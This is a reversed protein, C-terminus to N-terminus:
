PIIRRRLISAFRPLGTSTLGFYKYTIISGIPPPNKRQAISFGTGLRFSEGATTKVVLAGLLGTFQGKGPTHGTVIAEADQYLKLKLLDNSRGQQYLSDTKHLMLGEGGANVIQQLKQQLSHNTTLKFQKVAQIHPSNINTVIQKLQLLRQDFKEKSHPLDFLMYKVNSWDMPSPKKRRVIGSLTDFQNRGSWLEGDLAIEPLAAIFSDPARIINGKRSRLNTGDWYARVGDLKESIWYDNINIEPSYVKALLLPPTSPESLVSSSFLLAFIISLYLNVIRHM